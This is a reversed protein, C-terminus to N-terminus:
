AKPPETQGFRAMILRRIPLTVLSALAIVVIGGLIGFMRSSAEGFDTQPIPEQVMTLLLCLAVQAGTYAVNTKSHAIQMAFFLGGALFIAWVAAIDGNAAVAALGIAGGIFCGGVRNIAKATSGDRAASIIIFATIPTQVLGPLHLTEWIPPIAAIAVAASLAHGIFEADFKGVLERFFQPVSRLRDLLHASPPAPLPNAIHGRDIGILDFATAVVVGTLIELVRNITVTGVSGPDALTDFVILPVTLGLLVFAYSYRSTAQLYVALGSVLAVIVVLAPMGLGAWQVLGYAILGGGVTGFVRQVGRRLTSHSDNQFVRVVSIGAWAPNELGILHAITVALLIGLTARAAARAHGDTLRMARITTGLSTLYHPFMALKPRLDTM